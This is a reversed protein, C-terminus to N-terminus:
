VSIGKIKDDFERLKFFTIYFSVRRIRFCLVDRVVASYKYKNKNKNALVYSKTDSEKKKAGGRCTHTRM